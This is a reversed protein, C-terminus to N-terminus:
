GGNNRMSQVLFFPRLTAQPNTVKAELRMWFRGAEYGPMSQFSQFM